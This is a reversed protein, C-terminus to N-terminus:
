RKPIYDTVEVMRTSPVVETITSPDFEWGKDRASDDGTTKAWGFSFYRYGEESKMCVVRTTETWWRHRDENGEWVPKEDTLLDILTDDDIDYGNKIADQKLFERVKEDM